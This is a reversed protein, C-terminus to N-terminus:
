GDLSIVESNKWRGGSSFEYDTGCTRGCTMLKSNEDDLRNKWSEVLLNNFWPHSLIDAWKHRRLSNFGEEFQSLLKTMQQKQINNPDAFYIPAGLWCCPWVDANFDVYLGAMDEKYKCHIKTTNVYNQWSGYKQKIVDFKSQAEYEGPALEGTVENKRNFIPTIQNDTNTKMHHDHIFRATKKKNFQKFGMKKALSVAEDVQHVNHAFMLYDWRARGGAGIFAQANEMVKEFRSNVRYIANTEQLGDVSFIVLHRGKKLKTGLAKWWEPTRLSGNTYIFIRPSGFSLLRDMMQDLYPYIVPDGYNGNFLVQKLQPILEEPFVKEIDEEPLDGVPLQPNIRGLDM